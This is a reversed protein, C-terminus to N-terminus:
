PKSATSRPVAPASATIAGVYFVGNHRPVGSVLYIGPAPNNPLPTTGNARFASVGCSVRSCVWASGGTYALDLTIPNMDKLLFAAPEYDANWPAGRTLSTHWNGALVVVKATVDSRQLYSRINDAMRKDRKVPGGIEDFNIDFLAVDLKHGAARLQVVRELLNRMAISTRGETPSTAWFPQSEIARMAANREGSQSGLYNDVLGQFNAPLELALVVPTGNKSLNCVVEGVFQPAENTGHIEGFMVLRSKAVSDIHLIPACSSKRNVALAGTDSACASLVFLIMGTACLLLYRM